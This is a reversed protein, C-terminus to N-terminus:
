DDGLLKFEDLGKGALRALATGARGFRAKARLCVLEEDPLAIISHFKILVSLGSVTVRKTGVVFHSVNLLIFTFFNQL